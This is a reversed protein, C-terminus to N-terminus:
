TLSPACLATFWITYATATHRIKGRIQGLHDTTVWGSSGREAQVAQFGAKVKGFASDESARVRLTEGMTGM